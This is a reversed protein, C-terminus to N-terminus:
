NSPILIEKPLKVRLAQGISELLVDIYRGEKNEVVIGEINKLFGSTIKIKDGTKYKKEYGRAEIQYGLEILQRLRAIEDERVVAIKGESRVFNVVGKTQM